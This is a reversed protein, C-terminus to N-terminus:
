GNQEGKQTQKHRAVSRAQEMVQEMVDDIDKDRKRFMTEQIVQPDEGFEIASCLSRYSCWGCHMDDFSPYFVLNEDAMEKAVALMYNHFNQLQSPARTLFDRRVFCDATATEESSLRQLLENYRDPIVEGFAQQLQAKAMSYTTMQSKDASPTGDKLMRLGQPFAKKHQQYYMGGIKDMGFIRSAAYLYSTVQVDFPLKSTSFQKASKYDVVCIRDQDDVVLNDWRGKLLVTLNGKKTRVKGIEVEFPLECSHEGGQFRYPTLRPRTALWVFEYYNLMAVGLSIMEERSTEMPFEKDPWLTVLAEFALAPSEFLRDGEFDELAFHMASGFLFPAPITLPALDRKMYSGFEWARRCEQFMLYDSTHIELVKGRVKAKM